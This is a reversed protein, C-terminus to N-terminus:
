FKWSIEYCFGDIQSSYDKITYQEIKLKEIVAPSLKKYYFFEYVHEIEIKRNIISAIENLQAKDNENIYSSTRQRAEKANILNM